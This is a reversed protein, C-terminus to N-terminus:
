LESNQVMLKLYFIIFLFTTDIVPVFLPNPHSVAFLTEAKPCQLMLFLVKM